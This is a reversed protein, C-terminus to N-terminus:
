NDPAGCEVWTKVRASEEASAQTTTSPNGLPKPMQSGATGGLNQSFASNAIDRSCPNFYTGPQGDATVKAGTGPYKTLLKYSEAPDDTIKPPITGGHCSATEACRWKGNSKMFPFIDNKYSVPCATAPGGDALPRKSAYDKGGCPVATGNSDKPDDAVPPTPPSKGGLSNPSGYRPIDPASCNTAALGLALSALALPAFRLTGSFRMEM